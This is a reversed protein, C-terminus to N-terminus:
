NNEEYKGLENYIGEPLNTKFSRNFMRKKIAKDICERAKCVYAGHGGLRHNIDLRYENDVRAIRILETQSKPERCAM